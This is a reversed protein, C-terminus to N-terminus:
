QVDLSSKHMYYNHTLLINKAHCENAITSVGDPSIITSKKARSYLKFSYILRRHVVAISICTAVENSYNHQM